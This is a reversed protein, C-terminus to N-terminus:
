SRRRSAARVKEKVLKEFHDLYRQLSWKVHSSFFEIEDPVMSVRPHQNLASQLWSTACKPRASLSSILFCFIASRGSLAEDIEARM